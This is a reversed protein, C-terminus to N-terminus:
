PKPPWGLNLHDFNLIANTLLAYSGQTTMRWMPNNAFLLIHGKGLPSDVVVAKGAIDDAGELMGSLLISATEKPMAVIVRPRDEVKPLYLEMMWAYNEPKQFGEEGPGPEPKPPMAVFPRGQPVDPDEKSGRGSPRGGDRESVDSGVRFFPGSGLYIPLEKDYGWAVPSSSDKVVARLLSGSIKLKPTEVPRVWRALGFQM